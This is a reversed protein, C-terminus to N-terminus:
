NSCKCPLVSENAYRNKKKSTLMTSIAKSPHSHISNELKNFEISLETMGLDPDVVGLRKYQERLDRAPVETVGCEIAELLADHLLIYQPQPSLAICLQLKIISPLYWSCLILLAICRNASIMNYLHHLKM